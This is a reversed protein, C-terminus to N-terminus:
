LRGSSKQLCKKPFKKIKKLSFRVKGACDKNNGVRPGIKARNLDDIAVIIIM